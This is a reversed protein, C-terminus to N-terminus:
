EGEGVPEPGTKIGNRDPQKDYINLYIPKENRLLDPYHTYESLPRFTTVLPDNVSAPLPTGEPVFGIDLSAGESVVRIGAPVEVTGNQVVLRIKGLSVRYDTVLYQAM